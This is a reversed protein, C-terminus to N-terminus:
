RTSAMSRIIPRVEVGPSNMDILLFSIGEQPKGETSTRVLCFIMDAHQGLTTWTKQGNVIYHDGDRVASTKFRPWTPAPARSPIARAGGTTAMRPHAAPLPRRSMRASPSCCRGWCTSASRCSARRAPPSANKKSSTSRYRRGGAGGYETPWHWALWGRTRLEAHWALYDDKTLRKGRKVKDSLWAPLRDKIWARVDDRFATEEASLTLDM